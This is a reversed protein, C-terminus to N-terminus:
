NLIKEKPLKAKRDLYFEINEGDLSRILLKFKGQKKKSIKDVVEKINMEGRDSERLFFKGNEVKGYNIVLRERINPLGGLYATVSGAYILTDRDFDEVYFGRVKVRNFMGVTINDISVTAGMYSSAFQSAKDVVKNQVSPLSLLLAVFVPLFILLLAIASVLKFFIKTVKRM